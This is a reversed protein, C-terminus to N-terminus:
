LLCVDVSLQRTILTRTIVREMHRRNLNSNILELLTIVQRTVVSYGKKETKLCLVLCTRYSLLDRASVSWLHGETMFDQLFNNESCRNVATIRQQHPTIWLNAQITVLTSKHWNTILILDMKFISENLSIVSIPCPLLWCNPSIGAYTRQWKRTLNIVYRNRVSVIDSSLGSRCIM